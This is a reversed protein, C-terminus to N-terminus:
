GDSNWVTITDCEQGDWNRPICLVAVYWDLPLMNYTVHKVISIDHLLCLLNKYAACPIGTSHPYMIAVITCWPMTQTPTCLPPCPASLCDSCASYPPQQAMQMSKGIPSANPFARWGMLAKRKCFKRLGGGGGLGARLVGPHHTSNPGNRDEGTLSVLVYVCVVLGPCAGLGPFLRTCVRIQTCVHFVTCTGGRWRARPRYGVSHPRLDTVRLRSGSSLWLKKRHGFAGWQAKAEASTVLLTAVSAAPTAASAQPRM